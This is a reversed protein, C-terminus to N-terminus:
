RGTLEGRKLGGEFISATFAIEDSPIDKFHEQVAEIIYPWGYDDLHPLMMALAKAYNEANKIRLEAAAREVAGITSLGCITIVNDGNPSAEKAHFIFGEVMEIHDSYNQIHPHVWEYYDEELIYTTSAPADRRKRADFTGKRQNCRKCTLALNKPFFTFAPYGATSRRNARENSNSKDQDGSQLKPLIHDIESHGIEKKILRQCYVCRGGQAEILADKLAAKAKDHASSGWEKGSKAALAFLDAIENSITDAPIKNYTM